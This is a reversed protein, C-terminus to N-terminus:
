GNGKNNRMMDHDHKLMRLHKQLVPLAQQAFQKVQMSSGHNIEYKTMKIAKKHGKIEDNVYAKDFGMGSKKMLNKATQRQNGNPRNPLSVNWNQAKQKLKMDLNRHDSALTRGTNKVAQSHGKNEAMHGAKVEALNVRHINKMWKKDQHSLKHNAMNSTQMGKRSSNYQALAGSSLAVSGLALMAAAAIIIPKRNMPKSKM